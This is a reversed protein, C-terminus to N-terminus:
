RLPGAIELYISSPFHGASEEFAPREASQLGDKGDDPRYEPFVSAIADPCRYHLISLCFLIHVGSNGILFAHLLATEQWQFITAVADRQYDYPLFIDHFHCVVGPKLRPLVELILFNVDSGTKVTHSSDIFLLDGADLSEFVSLEVTQVPREILTLPAARLWGSSFPEIAVIEASPAGESTNRRVAELICYTSVGSGVEVIRRPKLHRLVAYLAQAEIYGFGPGCGADCGARYAPNGRYEPEYPLCYRALREVQGDLELEVGRLESPRAWVDRTRELLNLDPVATYYHNPLISVGLRLGLKHGVLLARKLRNKLARNV